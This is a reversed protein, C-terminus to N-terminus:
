YDLFRQILAAVLLALIGWGSTPSASKTRFNGQYQRCAHLAHKAFRLVTGAFLEYAAALSSFATYSDISNVLVEAATQGRHQVLRLHHAYSSM